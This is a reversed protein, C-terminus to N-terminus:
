VRVIIIIIIKLYMSIEDLIIFYQKMKKLISIHMRCNRRLMLKKRYTARNLFGCVQSKVKIPSSVKLQIEIM